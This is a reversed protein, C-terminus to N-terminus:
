GGPSARFVGNERKVRRSVGSPEGALRLLVLRSEIIV